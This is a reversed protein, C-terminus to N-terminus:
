QCTLAGLLFAVYRRRAQGYSGDWMLTTLIYGDGADPYDPHPVPFQREGSYEPWQQITERSWQEWRLVLNFPLVDQMHRCVGCEYDRPGEMVLTELAARIQAKHMPKLKIKMDIEEKTPTVPL